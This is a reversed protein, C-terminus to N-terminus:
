DRWEAPDYYDDGEHVHNAAIAEEIREYEADSLTVPLEDDAAVMLASGLRIRRSTVQRSRISSLWGAVM